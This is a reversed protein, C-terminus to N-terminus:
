KDDAGNDPSGGQWNTYTWSEGTGRWEWGGAPESYELSDPNQWGGLWYASGTIPQGLLSAIFENEGQDQVTALHGTVGLWSNELAEAADRAQSWDSPTEVIQYYHGTGAYYAPQALATGCLGLLSALTLGLARRKM